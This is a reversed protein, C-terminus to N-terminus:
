FFFLSPPPSSSIPFVSYLTTSKTTCVEMEIDLVCCRGQGGCEQGDVGRGKGKGVAEVAAVSTGYLNGGFEATEVFFGPRDRLAEFEGRSVFHYHM